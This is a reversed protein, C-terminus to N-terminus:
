KSSQTRITQEDPNPKVATPEGRRYNDIVANSRTTDRPGTHRSRVLDTPHAVMRALYDQSACGFNPHVRNGPNFQYATSWFGCRPPRVSYRSYRLRYSGAAGSGPKAPVVVIDSLDVGRRAARARIAVTMASRRAGPPTTVRLGAGGDGVYRDFFDDLKAATTAGMRRSKPAATVTLTVAHREIELPHRRSVDDGTPDSCAAMALVAAAAAM